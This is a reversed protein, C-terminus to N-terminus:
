KAQINTETIFNKLKRTNQSQTYRRIFNKPLFPANGVNQSVKFPTDVFIKWAGKGEYIARGLSLGQIRGQVGLLKEQNSEHITSSGIKISIADAHNTGLTVLHCKDENLKMYNDYFWKSPLASDIGLRSIVRNIDMDSTFLTTDDAYNCIDVKAIQLFLDNIFLNFFMPGLVSGQPVDLTIRKWSSFSGNISVRQQRGNFYNYIFTLACHSLGYAELKAILLDHRLCDFAKSLGLFIAGVKGGSDLSIKWKELLRSLAHQTSFDKIFACLLPSLYNTIYASSQKDCLRELVKSITPLISIPRYDNKKTTEGKKHLASVDACELETPFISNEICYTFIELM